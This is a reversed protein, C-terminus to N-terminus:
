GRRLLESVSADDHGANWLWRRLVAKADRSVAEPARTLTEQFRPSAVDRFAPILQFHIRTRLESLLELEDSEHELVESRRPSRINVYVRNNRIRFRLRAIIGDPANFRRRRRGDAARVLLVLRRAGGRPDRAPILLDCEDSRLERGGSLLVDDTANLTWDLLRLFSTKGSNNPGVLLSVPRDLDLIASRFGRLNEVQM